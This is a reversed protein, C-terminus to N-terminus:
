RSLINRLELIIRLLAWPLAACRNYVKISSVASKLPMPIPWQLPVILFAHYKKCTKLKLWEYFLLTGRHINGLRVSAGWVFGGVHVVSKNKLLTGSLTGFGWLESVEPNWQHKDPQWKYCPTLILCLLWHSFHTWWAAARLSAAAAEISCRRDKQLALHRAQIERAEGM